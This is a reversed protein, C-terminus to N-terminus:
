QGEEFSEQANAVATELNLLNGLVLLQGQIFRLDGESQIGIATDLRDFESQADALIHGWGESRFLSKLERYYKETEQSENM